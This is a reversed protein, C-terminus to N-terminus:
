ESLMRDIITLVEARTVGWAPRFYGDPCGEMIGLHHALWTFRFLLNRIDGVQYDIDRFTDRVQQGIEEYTPMDIALGTIYLKILVFTAAVDSRHASINPHFGPEAFQHTPVFRAAFKLDEYYWAEHDVDPFEFSVEESLDFARTIIAALEARTVNQNPRFSGDPFGSIIGADAFREITSEAWHESIDTFAPSAAAAPPSTLISLCLILATLSLFRKM